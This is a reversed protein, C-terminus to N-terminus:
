LNGSILLGNELIGSINSRLVSELMLNGYAM